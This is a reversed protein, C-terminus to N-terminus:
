RTDLSNRGERVRRPLYLIRGADPASELDVWGDERGPRGPRHALWQCLELLEHAEAPATMPQGEVDRRGDLGAGLLASLNRGAIRDLRESALESTTVVIDAHALLPRLRREARWRGLLHPPGLDDEGGLRAVLGPRRRRRAISAVVGLVPWCDLSPAIVVDMPVLLFYTCAAAAYAGLSQPLRGIPLSAAALEVGDREPDLAAPPAQGHVLTISAGREALSVAIRRIAAITGEPLGDPVTIGIRM